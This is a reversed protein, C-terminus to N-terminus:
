IDLGPPEAGRSFAGGGMTTHHSLAAGSLFSHGRMQCGCVMPRHLPAPKGTWISGWMPLSLSWTFDFSAIVDGLVTGLVM